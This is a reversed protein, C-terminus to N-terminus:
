YEGGSSKIPGFLKILVTHVHDVKWRLAMPLASQGVDM